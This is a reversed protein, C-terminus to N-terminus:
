GLWENHVKNDPRKEPGTDIGYKKACPELDLDLGTGVEADRGTEPRRDLRHGTWRGTVIIPEEQRGKDLEKDPGFPEFASHATGAQKYRM